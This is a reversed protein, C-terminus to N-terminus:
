GTARNAAPPNVLIAKFLPTGFKGDKRQVVEMPGRLSIYTGNGADMIAKITPPNFCSFPVDFSRGERNVSRLTGTARPAGSATTTLLLDRLTGFRNLWPSTPTPTTM